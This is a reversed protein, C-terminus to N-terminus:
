SNKETEDTIISTLPRLVCHSIDSLPNASQKNIPLMYLDTLLIHSTVVLMWTIYLLFSSLIPFPFYRGIQNTKVLPLFIKQNWSHSLELQLWYDAQYKLGTNMTTKVNHSTAQVQMTVYVDCQLKRVWSPFNLQRDTLLIKLIKSGKWWSTMQTWLESQKRASIREM